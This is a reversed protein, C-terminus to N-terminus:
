FCSLWADNHGVHPYEFFTTSQSLTAVKQLKKMHAPPIQKDDSCSLFLIPVTISQIATASDFIQHTTLTLPLFLPFLDPLLKSISLFTNGVIM